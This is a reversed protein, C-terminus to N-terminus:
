NQNIVSKIASVKESSAVRILMIRVDMGILQYYFVHLYDCVRSVWKSRDRSMKLRVLAMDAMDAM